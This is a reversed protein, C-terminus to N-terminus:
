KNCFLHRYIDKANYLANTEYLYNKTCKFKAFSPETWGQTATVFPGVQAIHHHPSRSVLVAVIHFEGMCKVYLYLCVEKGMSGITLEQTGCTCLSELSYQQVTVDCAVASLVCAWHLAQTVQLLLFIFNRTYGTHIGQSIM